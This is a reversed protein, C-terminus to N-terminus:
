AIRTNAVAHRANGEDGRRFGPGLSKLALLCQAGAKAPAVFTQPLLNVQVSIKRIM